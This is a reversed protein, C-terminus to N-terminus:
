ALHVELRSVIGDRKFIHQSSSQDLHTGQIIQPNEGTFFVKIYSFTDQSIIIPVQCLTFAISKAPLNISQNRNLVDIFTFQQADDLFEAPDILFNNFSLHGDNIELGLEAQRALIEEKVSGTMGPQRAGQGKPTHSYPDTPFAGYTKPDKNFGFGACVKRYVDLLESAEPEDQHRIVTEQIALLLKSVMHWYVSSLGEYAFFTGSRGTFENHQFLGEFLAKIEEREDKIIEEFNEDTLLKDLAADIDKVNHIGGSFHYLGKLDRVFLSKDNNQVLLRPLKLNDVQESELTNKSLFDPLCKDPYLIYTDQDERYLASKRLNRLLSLSDSASLFGSSLISVQGELMEQLHRISATREGLHLTNYTHFLNDERRNAKLTHDIYRLSLDFLSSILNKEIHDVKGSLGEKYILWRYNSGAIGLQDMVKRRQEDTFSGSLQDQFQSLVALISQLLIVVEQSLELSVSTDQKFFQHCFLIYRRLYSLTVVSLGKGVLANNADNWEPRQTNMWIGGEPVFNVLKALLLIILKEALSRHLVKGNQDHVLKADSGIIKSKETIAENSKNDFNITNFPDELLEQYPKIHYPINAYSLIPRSLFGILRGPYHKTSIEMLKLLYIIQHDGWYGINAWPNGPEPVEWDVGARSIRYPNYGDLTTASLFNFIMAQTFEPFSYALAEWNQFIDRWNGEYNLKLSGDMNKIDIAFKNWPRSPDGHRRSFTLPLYTYGLRTLDTSQEKEIRTQLESLSIIEPLNAFFERHEEFVKHLHLKIYQAFDKTDIRYQDAFVGGRMINFVVNALHHTTRNNQSTLQLGDASAVFSLLNKENLHIDNEILEILKPTDKGLVNLIEVIDAANKNTDAAIYWILEEGPALKSQNQIFYAGRCGRVETEPTIVKGDRFDEVQISSLLHKEATLGVQFVTTALLSESPEALDTLTSNLTFIGLGTEQNLESRKYADLLCSLSSQTDALINAALINQLGDLIQLQVGDGTLNTNQLWCTKIFGFQESTRWAYRFILQLSHNIEEFVLSTGLNNKYLNRELQYQGFQRHSFPEWIWKKNNILVHFITKSGTNDYNDTVKDETYYPFLAQDANHRGASLGGNSAVFLWHNYSSVISIFFPPMADFNEIKYYAQGFLTVPKGKVKINSSNLKTANIHDIDLIEKM